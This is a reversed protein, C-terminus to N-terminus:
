VGTFEERKPWTFYDTVPKYRKGKGRNCNVCSLILNTVDYTGGEELPVIHDIDYDDNIFDNNSM